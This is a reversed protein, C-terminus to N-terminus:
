RVRPQYRRADVAPSPKAPQDINELGSGHASATGDSRRRVELATARSFVVGASQDLALYNPRGLTFWVFAGVDRPPAVLVTSTPPFSTGGIRSNMSTRRRRGAHPGAHIGGSIHTDLLRHTVSRHALPAWATRSTRSGGGSWRASCCPRSNEVGVHESSAGRERVRGSSRHPSVIGLM